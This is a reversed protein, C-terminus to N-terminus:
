RTDRMYKKIQEMHDNLYNVADTSDLFQDVGGLKEPLALVHADQIQKHIAEYFRGGGIVLFPRNYFYSAQEVLPETIGLANHMHAAIEYASVLPAQREQWGAATLVQEFLPILARSCDLRSFATGFWKVYPAYRREMLFCLNMLDKVLRAAVMRSGLEDGAQGTRGMFHEEQSIRMWQAALLYLWVDHPYYALKARAADLQGLGDLFVRGATVSLLQQQPILM